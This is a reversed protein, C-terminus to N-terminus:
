QFPIYIYLQEGAVLFHMFINFASNSNCLPMPRHYSQCQGTAFLMCFILNSGKVVLWIICSLSLNLREFIETAHSFPATMQFHKPIPYSLEVWHCLLKFNLASAISALTNNLLSFDSFSSLNLSLYLCLLSTFYFHYPELAPSLELKERLRPRFPKM